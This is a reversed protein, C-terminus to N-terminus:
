VASRPPGAGHVCRRHAPAAARVDARDRCPAMRDGAEPRRAAAAGRSARRAPTAGPRPALPQSPM